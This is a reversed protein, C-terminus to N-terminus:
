DAGVALGEKELRRRIQLMAAAQKESPVKGPTAALLLLQEEKATLHRNDIGWQRIRRWFSPKCQVVATIATIGRDIRAVYIGDKRIEAIAEPSILEAALEPLIEIRKQQARQWALEMKCWETVNERGEEPTTIVDYIVRAILKLQAM